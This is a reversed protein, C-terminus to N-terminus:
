PKGNSAPSASAMRAPAAHAQSKLTNASRTDPMKKASTVSASDCSIYMRASLLSRSHVPPASPRGPMPRGSSAPM